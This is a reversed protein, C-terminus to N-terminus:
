LKQVCLPMRVMRMSKCKGSKSQWIALTQLSELGFISKGRHTSKVFLCGYSALFFGNTSSM